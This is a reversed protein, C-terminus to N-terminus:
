PTLGFDDFFIMELLDSVSNEFKNCAHLPLGIFFLNKSNDMFAIHGNLANSTLNYITFSSNENPYFGRVYAITSATQLNPYNKEPAVSLVSAGAFLFTVSNRDYNDIPLFSQLTSLSYEFKSSSDSISMSYAIKGGSNIYKQSVQSIAELNPTGDSYWFVYDFLKLTQYLTISEFPLKTNRFDFLNFKGAMVGGQITSFIETYFDNVAQNENYDDVLLLNGNPKEVYWNRSTDPLAIFRSKAGSIDEAQIYIRNNDNLLLNPLLDDAIKNEDGNILVEMKPESESNKSLRLTILRVFGNLSIYETTDNLAINIVSISEDGDLDSANWGVTIVPLTKEPLVSLENWEIEPPTNKIPYSQSAPNPDVLGIDYFPEGETWVGDGNLDVFPEPGVNEDGILVVQDYIGNGQDDAASVIFTYNTDVTGIPLSFISDNKTTFSWSSDIGIWKFYYGALLGDPDDGWWHVKLRSKQQNLQVGPDPYLTVFTNPYRNKLPSDTISESCSYLFLGVALIIYIIKKM